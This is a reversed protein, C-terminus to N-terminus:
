KMVKRGNVIYVGSQKMAKVRRGALDYVRDASAKGAVKTIGTTLFADIEKQVEEKANDYVSPLISKLSEYKKVVAALAAVSAADQSEIIQSARTMTRLFEGKHLDASSPQCKITPDGIIVGDWGSTATFRLLYDGEAQTDFNIEHLASGTVKAPSAESMCGTPHCVESLVAVNSSAKLVSVTFPMNTNRANDNWFVSRFSLTYHGRSLVLPYGTTSGYTFVGQEYERASLYFGAPFDGDQTFYKMRCGGTQNSGSTKEDKTGDSKSNVRTWGLPIGEAIADKQSYWDQTLIVESKLEDGVVEEGYTYYFFKTAMSSGDEAVVERLQMRYEIEKPKSTATFTLTNSYGQEKLKFGVVTKGDSMSLLARSADVPKDFAFTFTVDDTPSMDFSNNEPSVSVVEPGPTLSWRKLFNWIEVNSLALNPDNSVFHGKGPLKLHCVEVGNEGDTYRYLVASTGSPGSKPKEQKPTANCKNRAVWANIHSQVPSYTCVDDSTGHTHIIPVPRSSKANPGGMNYGSIPAFAAIKDAIKNMCHYTLMGGMSFGSLYVRNKDIDYRKSMEEIIDLIFNVDRDGGIDWQNSIGNPYVLVFKATDAVASFHAYCYGNPDEMYEASQGSGHCMILLPRNKPIDKAAYVVMTRDQGGSRFKEATVAKTAMAIIICLSMLLFRKM